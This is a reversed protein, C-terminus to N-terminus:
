RCTWLSQGRLGRPGRVGPWSWARGATRCGNPQLSGLAHAVQDLDAGASAGQAARSRRCLNELREKLVEREEGIESVSLRLVDWAARGPPVGSSAPM